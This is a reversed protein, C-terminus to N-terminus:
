ALFLAAGLAARPSGRRDDCAAARSRLSLLSSVSAVSQTRALTWPHEPALMAVLERRRTERSRACPTSDSSYLIAFASVFASM